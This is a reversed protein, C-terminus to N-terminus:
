KNHEIVNGLRLHLGYKDLLGWIFDENLQMKNKQLSLYTNALTKDSTIIKQKIYSSLNMQEVYVSKTGTQAVLSILSELELPNQVFHPLLPGIFAYTRINQSNLESLAHLRSTISPAKIELAKSISDKASTITFGVEVEKLEQLVDIDRLVLASKTLISVLGLYHNNKLVELMRRTLQYKKEIPLYPDTVSSFFITSKLQKDLLKKLQKEFIEVSNKKIYVYNGWNEVSEGVFRGMFSAYCYLCSFSCGVYPNVVYHTDPLKSKTIVSKCDLEHYKM